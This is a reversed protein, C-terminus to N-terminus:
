IFATREAHFFAAVEVQEPQQRFHNLTNLLLGLTGPNLVLTKFSFDVLMDVQAINLVGVFRQEIAQYLIMKILHHRNDVGWGNASGAFTERLNVAAGAPDKDGILITVIHVVNQLVYWIVINFNDHYGVTFTNEAQAVLADATHTNRDTLKGQVGGTTTDARGIRQRHHEINTGIVLLQQVIRQVHATTVRTDAVVLVILKHIIKDLGHFM